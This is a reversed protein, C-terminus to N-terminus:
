WNLLDTSLLSFLVTLTVFFCLLYIACCLVYEQKIKDEAEKAEAGAGLGDVMTADDSDKKFKGTLTVDWLRVTQDNSGSALM